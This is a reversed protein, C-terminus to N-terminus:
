TTYWHIRPLIVTSEELSSQMLLQRLFDKDIPKPRIMSHGTQDNIPKPRIMTHRTQDNIPKPRIMSHRTQNNIVKGDLKSANKKVNIRVLTRTTNWHIEEM